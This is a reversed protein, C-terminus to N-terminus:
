ADAAVRLGAFIQRRHPHDWNRFSPTIVRSSTAFSGGRLVKYDPGFFVESYERYPHAVFGPYARFDSSTWEWVDGIMGLAGCPAADQPTAGAAVTGLVGNEVLNAHSWGGDIRNRGDWTAAMEWEVESPLRVGRARAFADAEHWSIHVVPRHPDIPTAGDALRWELEDTLWNLPRVIGEAERWAWGDATWWERRSYGGDHVFSLWDGNTIAVRGIRFARREVSHRPRENDYAFGESGAGLPFTGGPVDVLDLGTMGGRGNRESVGPGAPEGPRRPRAIRALNLTQLMTEGHQREHREVLDHIPGEPLDLDRVRLRVDTLFEEAEAHHLYPLRGRDARPTEFADYVDMLDPRLLELGGHRHALWLDEFAAIHGLDWVLPSMLPSHVRELDDDSIGAVLGLTQDRALELTNTDLQTM